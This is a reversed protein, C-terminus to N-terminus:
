LAGAAGPLAGVIAKIEAPSPIDVGVKFGAGSAASPRASRAASAGRARLDRVVNRAVLGHEQADSILASLSVRIKRIM